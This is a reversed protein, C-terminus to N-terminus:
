RARRSSPSSRSSVPPGAAAAAIALGARVADAIVTAVATHLRGYFRQTRYQLYFRRRVPAFDALVRVPSTTPVTQRPKVARGLGLEVGLLIGAENHLFSRRWRRPRLRAPQEAFFWSTTRDDPSSDLYVDTPGGRLSEIMVFEEDGVPTSVVGDHEAALDTLIFDAAGRLLMGPLADSEATRVELQVAPHAQVLPALAPLVMGPVISSPGALRVDGRLATTGPGEPRLEGLLEDELARQAHVFGLVRRGADTLTPGAPGRVLLTVELQQELAAIRRSLAPQSLHLATAAGTFSRARVVAAFAALQDQSLPHAPVDHVHHM